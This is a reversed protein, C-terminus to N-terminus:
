TKHHPVSDVMLHLRTLRLQQTTLQRHGRDQFLMRVRLLYVTPMAVVSLQLQYSAQHQQANVDITMTETSACQGVDPTFTYTTTTTNDIAPSWSGSIANTSTTPLSLADGSCIAAIPTFIPATQANVDITMTETSACQGVDPTFTYTTTSTNDVAPSWSGSISNTSTAPLSLADGSCIAAIPIFSPTTQANVNVTLDQSTACQGGDPTFTYTTTTTNDIAPSWSGSIANTSTTPLSLADGSCIASIPTFSPAAQANVNVTLDQIGCVSDVM